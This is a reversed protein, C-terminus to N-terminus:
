NGLKVRGFGVVVVDTLTVGTRNQLYHYTTVSHLNLTNVNDKRFDANRGLFATPADGYNCLFMGVVKDTGMHASVVAFGTFYRALVSAGNEGASHQALSAYQQCIGRSVTTVGDGYSGRTLFDACQLPRFTPQDPAGSVPGALVANIAQEDLGLVQAASVSLLTDAETDLTAPTHHPAAHAIATHAAVTLYPMTPDGKLKNILVEAEEGFSIREGDTLEGYWVFGEPHYAAYGSLLYPHTLQRLIELERNTLEIPAPDGAIPLVDYNVIPRLNSTIKVRM